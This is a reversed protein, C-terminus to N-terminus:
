ILVNQDDGTTTSNSTTFTYAFAMGDVPISFELSIAGNMFQKVDSVGKWKVVFDTQEGLIPVCNEVSRKSDGTIGVRLGTTSGGNVSVRLFPAAVRVPATIVTGNGGNGKYGAWGDRQLTAMGLGCGRTGFFPGNCGVYYYRLTSSNRASQLPDQVGGFVGCADFEGDKGLPLISDQSLWKWTRGDPSWALVMNVQGVIAPGGSPPPDQMREDQQLWHNGPNFVNGIGLYIGEYPFVVLGDPQYYKSTNLGTPYAPSWKGMYDETLTHTYGDMGM